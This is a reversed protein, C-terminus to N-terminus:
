DLLRRVHRIGFRQLQDVRDMPALGHGPQTLQSLREVIQQGSHSEIPVLSQEAGIDRYMQGKHTDQPQQLYVTPKNLRMALIPSHCECSLIAAARAYVATATDLQWWQRQAIVRSKIKAPLPDILWPDLLRLQYSMECCCLVQGGVEGVFWQIADRLKASDDAVHMANTAEIEAERQPTFRGPKNWHYPTIRLRPIVCLFSRDADIGLQALMQLASADDRVASAFASDPVFVPNLGAFGDARLKDISTSERTFCFSARHLVARDDDNAGLYSIGFFGFPKDTQNMWRQVQARGPLGSGSVHILLDSADIARDVQKPDDPDLITLGPFHRALMARTSDQMPGPWLTPRADPWHQALLAIMGPSHAVDGINCDQWSGRILIRNCM